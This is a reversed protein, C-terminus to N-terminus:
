IEEAPLRKKILRGSESVAQGFGSLKEANKGQRFICLQIVPFLNYYKACQKCVKNFVCYVGDTKDWIPLIKRSLLIGFNFISKLLRFAGGEIQGVM